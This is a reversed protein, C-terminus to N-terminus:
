RIVQITPVINSIAESNSATVTLRNNADRVITYGSCNSTASDGESGDQPIAAIYTPSLLAALDLPRGACKLLNTTTGGSSVSSVGSRNIEPYLIYPTGAPITGVLGTYPATTSLTLATATSPTSALSKAASTVTWSNAATIATPFAVGVTVQSTTNVVTITRSVGNITIVDGVAVNAFTAASSNIITLDVSPTTQTSLTITTSTTIYSFQDGLSLRPNFATGVGTVATGSGSITGQSAITYPTLASAVTIAAGVTMSTDSAINTITRVNGNIIITDNVAFDTTFFTGTGTVTTSATVVNITGRGNGAPSLISNLTTSDDLIRQYVANSISLVDARRQANRAQALQRTPNIAILVIAALIGIAAIVLLIELLTFGKREPVSMMKM